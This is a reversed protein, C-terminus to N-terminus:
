SPDSTALAHEFQDHQDERENHLCKFDKELLLFLKKGDGTEMEGSYGVKETSTWETALHEPLLMSIKGDLFEAKLEGSGSKRLEYQFSNKGFDTKETVAGEEAFRTVESRTLRLRISNGQIRIKM